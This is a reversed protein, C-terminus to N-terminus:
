KTKKVDADESEKADPKAAAKAKKKKKKKADKSKKAAKPKEDSDSLDKQDAGCSPCVIETKELDYFKTGCGKCEHKNGLGSM